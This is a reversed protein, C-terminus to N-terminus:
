NKANFFVDCAARYKKWSADKHENPVHGILKWDAQVKIVKDAVTKWDRANKLTSVDISSVFDIITNKLNLNEYQEEKESAKFDKFNSYKLISSFIDNGDFFKFVM